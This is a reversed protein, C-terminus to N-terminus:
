SALQEAVHIAASNIIDLNGAYKPLYDGFGEVKVSVILCGRNKDYVPSVVQKYNPVYTQMISVCENLCNEIKTMNPQECKILVTTKMSIPPNAPNINILAKVDKIGTFENIGLQTTQIYEDLSNRTGSGASLSAITSITEAYEPVFPLADVIFKVLPISAQGGCTVMHVTQGKEHNASGLAPICFDGIKAPTMNILLTRQKKLLEHNKLHATASTADFIVDFHRSGDTFADAGEDSVPVGLKKGLEMGKSSLNRGSFLTCHLKSSRQVKLLLDSGINGTGLIGVNVRKM